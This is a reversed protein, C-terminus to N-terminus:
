TTTDATEDGDDTEFQSPDEVSLIDKMKINIDGIALKLEGSEVKVSSVFGTTYTTSKIEAGSSDKATVAIKYEGPPLAVGGATKGDWLVTNKGAEKPGVGTYVVTGKTDTITIDVKDAKSALDYTFPAVGNLLRGSNGTATVYKSIYNVADNVQTGQQYNILKELNDNTAISQEVTAFQALQSTMQNTDMADSPDHNQLQTTFLKLFTQFDGSLQSRAKEAASDTKSTGTTTPTTNNTGTVTM